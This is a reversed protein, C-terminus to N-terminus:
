ADRKYMACYEDFTIDKEHITKAVDKGVYRLHWAEPVYGTIDQKGEPYRVIFGYEHAHDLVFQYEKTTSFKEYSTDGGMVDVALGTQHESFGPRASYTDANAKGDNQVYNNYIVTQRDYSRYASMGRIIYGEARADNCLTEFNECAEKRLYNERTSNQDSIRVLDDPAYEGISSYKNALVMISDPNEQTVCDTYYPKDLGINVYVIAQEYAINPNENKYSIYRSVLSSDFFSLSKFAEIDEDEVEPPTTQQPETTTQTTEESTIVPEKETQSTGGTVDNNENPLTIVIDDSEQTIDTTMEKKESTDPTSQTTTEEKTDKDKIARVLFAIVVVAIVIFVVSFGLIVNANSKKKSM